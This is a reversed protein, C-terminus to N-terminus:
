CISSALLSKHEMDSFPKLLTSSPLPFIVFSTDSLQSRPCVSLSPLLATSSTRFSKGKVLQDGNYFINTSPPLVGYEGATLWSDICEAGKCLTFVCFECLVDGTDERHVHVRAGFDWPTPFNRKMTKIESKWVCKNGVRRNHWQWWVTMLRTWYDPPDNLSEGRRENETLNGGHPAPYRRPHQPSLGWM